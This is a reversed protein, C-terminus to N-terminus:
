MSEFGMQEGSIDMFIYIYVTFGYHIVRKSAVAVLITTTVGKWSPVRSINADWWIGLWIWFMIPKVIRIDRVGGYLSWLVTPWNARCAMVLWWNRFIVLSLPRSHGLVKWGIRWQTGWTSVNVRVVAYVQIALVLRGVICFLVAFVPITWGPCVGGGIGLHLMLCSITFVGINVGM